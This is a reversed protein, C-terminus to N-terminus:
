ERIVFVTPTTKRMGCDIGYHEFIKVIKRMAERDDYYDSRVIGHILKIVYKTEEVSMDKMYDGGRLIGSRM